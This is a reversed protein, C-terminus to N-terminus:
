DKLFPVINKQFWTLNFQLHDGEVSLLKLKGAQDLQKLGIWDEKYIPSDKLSVLKETQGPAYFGLWESEKPEVVTEHLFKVLVLKNLKM